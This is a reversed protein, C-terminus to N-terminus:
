KSVSWERNLQSELIRIDLKIGNINEQTAQYLSDALDRNYRKTAVDFYETDGHAMSVAATWAIKDETRLRFIEKRYAIKYDREYVSRKKGYERLVAIADSLDRRKLEIENWLEM